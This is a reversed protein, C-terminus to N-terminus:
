MVGGSQGGAFTHLFPLPSSHRPKTFDTMRVPNVKEEGEAMRVHDRVKEPITGWDQSKGARIDVYLLNPEKDGYIETDTKGKYNDQARIQEDEKCGLYTSLVPVTVRSIDSPESMLSCVKQM